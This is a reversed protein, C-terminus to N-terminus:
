LAATKIYQATDDNVVCTALSVFFTDENGSSLFLFMNYTKQPHM